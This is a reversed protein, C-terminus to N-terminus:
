SSASSQSVGDMPRENRTLEVARLRWNEGIRRHPQHTTNASDSPDPACMKHAPPLSAATQSTLPTCSAVRCSASRGRLPSRRSERNWQSRMSVLLVSHIVLVGPLSVIRETTRHCSGNTSRRHNGSPPRPFDKGISSSASAIGPRASPHPVISVRDM